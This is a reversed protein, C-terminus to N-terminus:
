HMAIKLADQAAEKIAEALTPHAHSASAIDEITAKKSLAIVGEGIMESAHPGILHLGIIRHTKSDVVIKVFGDTDEACRARANGKFFAKGILPEIGLEKAEKEGLGVTAVEPHTYIVNPITLYDVLPNKKALLEAVAIGEDSAKHALMPGDVLDGIAYIHKLNTQFQGNIPIFGKSDVKVGIKDLNLGKTYPKRGIAVLVVDAEFAQEKQDIVAKLLVGEEKKEAQTVKASLHFNIKQKKLLQLLAKSFDPDLMPCIVDLMEIVTVETGLRAYVSALEVGIVGAGIVIMKKPIKELSLGGTSTVIVKEDIPLFPLTVSESGTALIFYDGEIEQKSNKELDQVQIKRDTVFSAEGSIWDVKNKKFLGAVGNVLGEVVKQKRAMMQDFNITLEPADIGIETGKEKIFSYQHTSELLTKSPICGVNLCTGGLTKRKEICATKFGLQAARIAAVYGGPGSGIVVVQYKEVM